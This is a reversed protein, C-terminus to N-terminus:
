NFGARFKYLTSINEWQQNTHAKQLNDKINYFQQCVDGQHWWIHINNYILGKSVPLM